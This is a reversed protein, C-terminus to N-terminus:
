LVCNTHNKLSHETHKTYERGLSEMSQKVYPFFRGTQITDHVRKIQLAPLCSTLQQSTADEGTDLRKVYCIKKNAQTFTAIKQQNAEVYNEREMSAIKNLMRLISAQESRDDTNPQLKEELPFKYLQLRSKVYDSNNLIDAFTKSSDQNMLLTIALKFLSIYHNPDFQCTTATIESPDNPRAFPKNQPNIYKLILRMAKYSSRPFFRKMNVKGATWAIEEATNLRPSNDIILPSNQASINATNGQILQVNISQQRQLMLELEQIRNKYQDKKAKYNEKLNKEQAAFALQNQELKSEYSTKVSKLNNAASTKLEEIQQDNRTHLEEIATTHEKIKEQLSKEKQQQLLTVIEDHDRKQKTTKEEYERKLQETQIVQSEVKNKLETLTAQYSEEIQKEVQILKIKYNEKLISVTNVLLTEAMELQSKSFAQKQEENFFLNKEIINELWGEVKEAPIEKELPNCLNTLVHQLWQMQVSNFKDRGQHNLFTQVELIIDELSKDEAAVNSYNLRSQQISPNFRPIFYGIVGLFSNFFGRQQGQGATIM